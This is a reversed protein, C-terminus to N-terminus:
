TGIFPLWITGSVPVTSGEVHMAVIASGAESPPEHPLAPAITMALRVDPTLKSTGHEFPPLSPDHTCPVKEQV